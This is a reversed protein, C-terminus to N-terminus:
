DDSGKPYALSLRVYAACLLLSGVALGVFVLRPHAGLYGEVLDHINSITRLPPLDTPTPVMASTTASRETVNQEQNTEEQHMRRGDWHAGSRLSSLVTM